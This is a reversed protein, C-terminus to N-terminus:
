KHINQFEKGNFNPESFNTPVYYCCISDVELIRSVPLNYPDGKEDFYVGYDNGTKNQNVVAKKLEATFSNKTVDCKCM